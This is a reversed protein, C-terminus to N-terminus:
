QRTATTPSAITPVQNRQILGKKEFDALVAGMGEYLGGFSPVAMTMRAVAKRRVAGTAPDSFDSFLTVKVLGNTLIVGAFGDVVIEPCLDAGEVEPVSAARQEDKREESM